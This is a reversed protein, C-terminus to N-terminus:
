ITHIIGNISHIQAGIGHLAVNFIWVFGIGAGWVGAGTGCRRIILIELVIASGGIINWIGTINNIGVDGGVMVNLVACVVTMYSVVAIRTVLIKSIGHIKVANRGDGSVLMNLVAGIVIRCIRGIIEDSGRDLIAVDLIINWVIGGFITGRGNGRGISIDIRCGIIWRVIITGIGLISRIIEDGGRGLIAM